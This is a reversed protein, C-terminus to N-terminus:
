IARDIWATVARVTELLGDSANTGLLTEATPVPIQNLNFALQYKDLIDRARSAQVRESPLQGTTVLRSWEMAEVLFAFMESWYRWRPVRRENTWNTESSNLELLEAWPGTPAVYQTPRTQTERILRALAMESAATRVAVGSYGISFSITSASAWAGAMGILFVLIDAKTGVGFGARLRPWLAAPEVLQLADPGKMPRVWEPTNGAADKKWRRDGAESAMTAFTSLGDHGVHAPFRKALGRLRQLSTLRSGKAAWWAVLDMLRREDVSVYLSLLVLAEPDIVSRPHRESIPSASSGM